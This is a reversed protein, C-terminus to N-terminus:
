GGIGAGHRKRQGGDVRDNRSKIERPPPCADGSGSGFLPVTSLIMEDAIVRQDATLAAHLSKASREIEDLVALHNQLKDILRGIQRPAPEAKFAAAPREQYFAMTYDNIRAVYDNWYPQQVETLKLREHLANLSSQPVRPPPAVAELSGSNTIATSSGAGAASTSLATGILPSLM